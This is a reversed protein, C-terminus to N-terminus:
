NLVELIGFRIEQFFNFLLTGRTGADRRANVISVTSDTFFESQGVERISEGFYVLTNWLLPSLDILSLEWM